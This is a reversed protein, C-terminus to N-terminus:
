YWVHPSDGGIVARLGELVEDIMENRAEAAANEVPNCAYPNGGNTEKERELYDMYKELRERLAM